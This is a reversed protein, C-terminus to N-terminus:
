GRPPRRGGRRAARPAGPGAGAQPPRGRWDVQAPTPTTEEVVLKAPRDFDFLRGDWGNEAATPQTAAPVVEGRVLTATAVVTVGIAGTLATVSMGQSMRYARSM